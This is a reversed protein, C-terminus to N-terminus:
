PDKIRAMFIHKSYLFPHTLPGNRGFFFPNFFCQLRKLVKCIAKKISKNCKFHKWVESASKESIDIFGLNYEKTEKNSKSKKAPTVDEIEDSNPQRKSPTTM